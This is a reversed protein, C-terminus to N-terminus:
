DETCVYYEKVLLLQLRFCILLKVSSRGYISITDERANKMFDMSRLSIRVNM